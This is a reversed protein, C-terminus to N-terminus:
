IESDMKKEERDTYKDQHHQHHHAPRGLLPQEELLTQIVRGGATEGLVHHVLGPVLVKLYHIEHGRGPIHIRMPQLASAPGPDEDTEM